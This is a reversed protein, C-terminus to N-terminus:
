HQLTHKIRERERELKRLRHSLTFMRVSGVLAMILAGAIASLLMAVGLPLSFTWALFEFQTAVNNQIIFVLLLILVIVGVILAAWVTGSVGRKVPTDLAPDYTGTYESTGTEEGRAAGGTPSAARGAGAPGTGTSAAGAAGARSADADTVSHRDLAGDPRDHRAPGRGQQPQAGPVPGAGAPAAAADDDPVRPAASREHPTNSM